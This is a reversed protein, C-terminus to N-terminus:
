EVNLESEWIKAEAEAWDLDEQTFYGKSTAKIKKRLLESVPQKLRYERIRETRSLAQRIVNM